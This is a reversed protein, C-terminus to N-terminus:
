PHRLAATGDVVASSALASVGERALKRPLVAAARGGGTMVGEATMSSRRMPDDLHQTTPSNCGFCRILSTERGASGSWALAGAIVVSTFDRAQILAPEGRNLAPFLDADRYDLFLGNQFVAVQCLTRIAMACSPKTM